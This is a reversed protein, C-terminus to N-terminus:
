PRVRIHAVGQALPFGIARATAISLDFERRRDAPGRDIVPVTLCRKACVTIKAGCPHVFTAVGLRKYTLSEGHGCALPGGADPPSFYSALAIRMPRRREAILRANVRARCAPHSNCANPKPAPALIIVTAALALVM